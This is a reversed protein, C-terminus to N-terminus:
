NKACVLTPVAPLDRQTVKSNKAWAVCQDDWKTWADSLSEGESSFRQDFKVNRDDEGRCYAVCTWSAGLAQVSFLSVLLASQLLKM